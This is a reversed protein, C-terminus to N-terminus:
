RDGDVNSEHGNETTVYPLLAAVEPPCDDPRYSMIEDLTKDLYYLHIVNQTAMSHRYRWPGVKIPTGSDMIMIGADKTDPPATLKEADAWYAFHYKAVFRENPVFRIICFAGNRRITCVSDIRIPVASPGDSVLIFDRKLWGPLDKRWSQPTITLVPILWFPILVLIVMLAEVIKFALRNTPSVLGRLKLSFEPEANWDFPHGCEPCRLSELGFLSYNCRSCRRQEALVAGQVVESIARSTQIFIGCFGLLLYIVPIQWDNFIIPYGATWFAVHCSGVIFLLSFSVPLIWWSKKIARDCADAPDLLKPDDHLYRPWGLWRYVKVMLLFIIGHFLICVATIIAVIVLTAGIGNWTIEESWFPSDEYPFPFAKFPGLLWAWRAFQDSVVGNSCIFFLAAAAAYAFPVWRISTFFDIKRQQSM